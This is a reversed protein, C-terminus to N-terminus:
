HVHIGSVGALESIHVFGQEEKEREREQACVCVCVCVCM